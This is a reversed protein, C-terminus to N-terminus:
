LARCNVDDLVYYDGTDEHHLLCVDDVTRLTFDDPKGLMRGGMPNGYPDMPEARPEIMLRSDTKLADPTLNVRRGNMVESVIKSIVPRYDKGDDALVAPVSQKYNTSMCAGLLIATGLALTKRM